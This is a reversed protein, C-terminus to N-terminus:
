WRRQLMAVIWATSAPLPFHHPADCRRLQAARARAKAEALAMPSLASEARRPRATAKRAPVEEAGLALALASAGFAPAGAARAPRNCRLCQGDASEFIAGDAESEGCGACSMTASRQVRVRMEALRRATGRSFLTYGV